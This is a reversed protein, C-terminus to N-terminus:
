FINEYVSSNFNQSALFTNYQISSKMLGLKVLQKSNRFKVSSSNKIIINEVKQLAMDYIKYELANGFHEERKSESKAKVIFDSFFKSHFVVGQIDSIKSGNISHQGETLYTKNSYKFLPIKSLYYNWTNGTINNFVRERMNGFFVLSEFYEWKKKDFFRTKAVRYEIDFYQCVDLPNENSLYETKNLSKDSYIDLLLCRISEYGKIEFYNILNKFNTFEIFPFFFIEDIDVVFCWHNKGYIDLFYEMWYWFRKFSEEIRFVHVNDFSLAIEVTNDTSNNDILFVRDVGNEFYYNLFFPLRLSENRAIAFLRIEEDIDPIHRSDIKVYHFLTKYVNYKHFAKQILQFTKIM